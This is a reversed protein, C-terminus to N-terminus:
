VIPEQTNLAEYVRSLVSSLKPMLQSGKAATSLTITHIEVNILQSLLELEKLRCCKKLKARIECVHNKGEKTRISNRIM